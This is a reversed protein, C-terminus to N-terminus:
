GIAYPGDEVMSRCERVLPKEDVDDGVGLGAAELAAAEGRQAEGLQPLNDVGGGGERAPGPFHGHAWRMMSRDVAFPASEKWIIM